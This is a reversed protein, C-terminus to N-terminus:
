PEGKCQKIDEPGKCHVCWTTHCNVCGPGNHFEYSMHFMDVGGGYEEDNMHLKHGMRVAQEAFEECYKKLADM